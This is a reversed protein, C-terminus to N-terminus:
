ERAARPAGCIAAHQARDLMRAPM